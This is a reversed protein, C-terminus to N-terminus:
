RVKRISVRRQAHDCVSNLAVEPHDGFMGKSWFPAVESDATMRECDLNAGLRTEFRLTPVRAVEQCKEDELEMELLFSQWL